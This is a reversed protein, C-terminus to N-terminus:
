VKTWSELPKHWWNEILNKIIKNKNLLAATYSFSSKAVVLIDAEVMAHFTNKIDEQLHFHVNANNINEKIEKFNDEKGESFIHLNIHKQNQNQNQNQNINFVISNNDTNTNDETPFDISNFFIEDSTDSAQDSEYGSEIGEPPYFTTSPSTELEKNIINNLLKIYDTNSIFRSPYREQSVDGRRIHVVIHIENNQKKLYPLDIIKNKLYLNRLKERLAKHYFFEPYFSGHVIPGEKCNILQERDYEDMYSHLKYAFNLNTFQNMIEPFREENKDNHHMMYMPTHIYEFDEKFDCYAILSLIAQYQSGFGDTKGKITMKQPRVTNKVPPPWFIHWSIPHGGRAGYRVWPIQNKVVPTLKCQITNNYELNGYFYFSKKENYRLYQIYNTFTSTVTGIFEDSYTCVLMEVIAHIMEKKRHHLLYYYQLENNKYYDNVFKAIVDQLFIIKVNLKKIKEFVAPNEKVDTAILITPKIKNTIHGKIFPIINANFLNNYRNKFNLDKFYDGFRLHLSITFNTKLSKIFNKAIDYLFPKFKLSRCIEIMTRYNAETTYFNYFCRSANTQNIYIFQKNKYDDFKLYEKQISHIFYKIHQKNEKTELNKDVFVIHSFRQRYSMKKTKDKNELIQTLKLPVSSHCVELGYPLYDLFNNEFFSILHGFEWSAKGCNCLPNKILIVLKRNSINSLYIATELSFLQNCLGVGSFLEYVLYKM